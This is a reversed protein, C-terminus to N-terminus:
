GNWIEWVEMGDLERSPWEWEGRRYREEFYGRVRRLAEERTEGSEEVKGSKRAWEWVKEEPTKVTLIVARVGAEALRKMQEVREAKLHTADVVVRRGEALWALARDYMKPMVARSQSVVVEDGVTDLRTTGFKALRMEDSSIYEAGWKEALQKALYSKGSGPLGCMAVVGVEDLRGSELLQDVTNFRM